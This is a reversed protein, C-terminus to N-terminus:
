ALAVGSLFNKAKGAAVLAAAANALVIDRQPGSQGTLIRQLILACDEREGGSLDASQAESLGFDAATVTIETIVHGNVKAIKTPATTSIEDLGDEGHVVFAREVGLRSLAEAVPRVL